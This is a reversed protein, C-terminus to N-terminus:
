RAFPANTDLNVPMSAVEVCDVLRCAVKLEDGILAPVAVQLYDGTDICPVPVAYLRGSKRAVTPRAVTHM